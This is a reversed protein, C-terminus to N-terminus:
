TAKLFFHITVAEFQVFSIKREKKRNRDSERGREVRSGEKKRERKLFHVYLCIYVYMYMSM